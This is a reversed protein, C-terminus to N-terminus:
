KVEAQVERLRRELFRRESENTVLALAQEYSIAAEKSSGIRRLMDARAAHLLHYRELDGTAAINDILALARAPGEVMAVAVARNLSVIPSPQIRELLDYLRVIQPWDTDEARPASCHIAAIAAQVAIPGPVGRLAEDVLPLAEAIEQKDWRARDQEDLLVLDGAENLRSDRRSDHLLMLALLATAESPSDPALLSVVLRGLRIAEVCLDTRVLAAGRTATYGENFILYIVTLVADLRSPLDATEPITYPIGADRIKRKARVLRQQMTAVPVLFARAIEESDLGGLTRLTLAVQVEPALSPHCCTFILRLRDDPIEDTLYEPQEVESSENALFPEVKEEFRTRRRIRDIIKHRATQIIWARPFEPVGSERWAPVASAFAEQAAEEATDFDGFLRILTAVIRGWDSRYLTDVAVNADAVM